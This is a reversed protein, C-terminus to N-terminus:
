VEDGGFELGVMHHVEWADQQDYLAAAIQFAARATHKDVSHVVALMQRALAPADPMEDLDWGSRKKERAM